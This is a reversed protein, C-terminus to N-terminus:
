PLTVKHKKIQHRWFDREGRLSQGVPSQADFRTIVDTLNALHEGALEMGEKEFIARGEAIGDLYYASVIQLKEPARKFRQRIPM